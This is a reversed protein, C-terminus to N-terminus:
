FELEPNRGGTRMDHRGVWVCFIVTHVLRSLYPGSLRDLFDKMSKFFFAAGSVALLERPPASANYVPFTLATMPLGYYPEVFPPIM